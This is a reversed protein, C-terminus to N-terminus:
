KGKLDEHRTFGLDAKEDPQRKDNHNADEERIM